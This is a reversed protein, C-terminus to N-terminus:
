EDWEWDGREVPLRMNVEFDHNSAGMYFAAKKEAGEFHDRSAQILM